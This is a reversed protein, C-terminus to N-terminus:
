GGGDGYEDEDESESFFDDSENVQGARMKYKGELRRAEAKPSINTGEVLDLSLKAILEKLYDLHPCPPGHYNDNTICSALHVVIQDKPINERKKSMRILNALKRHTARGCCGGCTMYLIRLNEEGAYVSFAGSRENFAKECFYGSCRQKVLHCQIVAIYTKRNNM